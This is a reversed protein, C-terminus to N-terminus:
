SKASAIMRNIDECLRDVAIVHVTPLNLVEKGNETLILRSDKIKTGDEHRIENDVVSLSDIDAFLFEYLTETVTEDILSFTKQSIVMGNKTCIVAAARYKSTRCKRDDKGRRMLIDKEDYIYNGIVTPPIMRLIQKELGLNETVEKAYGDTMASVIADIDKENARLSRPIFALAAGLIAIALGILMQYPMFFFWLLECVVLIAGVILIPLGIYFLKDTSNFYKLNKGYDM